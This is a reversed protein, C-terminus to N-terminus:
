ITKIIYNGKHLEISSDAYVYENKNLKIKYGNTKINDANWNLTTHNRISYDNYSFINQYTCLDEKVINNVKDKLEDIVEDKTYGLTEIIYNSIREIDNVNTKYKNLVNYIEKAAPTNELTTDVTQM